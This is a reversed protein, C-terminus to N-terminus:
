RNKQGMIHRVAESLKEINKNKAVAPALNVGILECEFVYDTLLEFVDKKKATYLNDLKPFGEVSPLRRLYTDGFCVTSKNIKSREWAVSGSFTWALKPIEGITLTYNVNPNLLVYILFKLPRKGVWTPHEKITM